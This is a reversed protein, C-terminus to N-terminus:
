QEDDVVTEGIRGLDVREMGQKRKPAKPVSPSRWLRTLPINEHAKRSSFSPSRRSLAASALSELRGCRVWRAACAGESAALSQAQYSRMNWRWPENGIRDRLSDLQGTQEVGPTYM